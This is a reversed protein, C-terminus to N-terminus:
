DQLILKYHGYAYSSIGDDLIYRKDDYCSLSIKNNKYSFVQHCDSRFGKMEHRMIDNNELCELFDQHSLGKEIAKKKVGKAAKKNKIEIEFEPETVQASFEADPESETDPDHGTVQASSKIEIEIEYSYM